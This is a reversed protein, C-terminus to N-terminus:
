ENTRNAGGHIRMHCEEVDCGSGRDPPTWLRSSFSRGYHDGDLNAQATLDISGAVRVSAIKYPQDVSARRCLQLPPLKRELRNLDAILLGGCRAQNVRTTM